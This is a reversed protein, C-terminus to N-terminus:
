MVPGPIESPLEPPQPIEIPPEMIERQFGCEGEHVVEIGHMMEAVCRNSYTKGDAGCVPQYVMPCAVGPLEVPIEPARRRAQEAKEFTEQRKTEVDEKIEERKEESIGKFAEEHGKMSQERAREIAPWAQEPVKEYLEILVAQHKLTTEYFKSLVDDTNIGRQRIRETRQLALNLHEEYRELTKETFEPKGKEALAKVESIRREALFLHREVRATQGFTFLTGISEAFSKIFYLPHDPLMGPEPLTNATGQVTGNLIFIVLLIVPLIKKIM